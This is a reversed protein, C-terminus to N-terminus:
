KFRELSDILASLDNSIENIHAQAAEVTAFYLIESDDENTIPIGIFSLILFQDDETEYINWM